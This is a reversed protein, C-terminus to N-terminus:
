KNSMIDCIPVLVFCYFTVFGIIQCNIVNVSIFKLDVKMLKICLFNKLIGLTM